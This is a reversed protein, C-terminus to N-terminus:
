IMDIFKHKFKYMLMSGITFSIITISWFAAAYKLDNFLGQHYFLANRYGEVIYYLPNCKMIKQIWKPLNSMEWLIPTLYLLLRMSANVMKKVDRTFMNLVSTIMALSISFCISCIMYYILEINHFNIKMGRAVFFVYILFVMIIHSFLEKLTITAPLISVPFKMKTIVNIKSYICNVGQTICPSIFFWVLMGALMWELFPVGNVPKGSRIGMGFVFWYTLIQIVPNLVNWLLGLRSDRADALIEYKAISFTRYFNRVNEKIVYAVSNIM